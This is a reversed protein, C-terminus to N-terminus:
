AAKGGVRVLVRRQAAVREAANRIVEAVAALREAAGTLNRPALVLVVDGNEERSRALDYTLGLEPVAGTAAAILRNVHEIVRGPPTSMEFSVVLELWVASGTVFEGEVPPLHEAVGVLKGRSRSGASRDWGSCDVDTVPISKGVRVFKGSSRDNPTNM